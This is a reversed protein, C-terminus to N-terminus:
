GEMKIGAAEAQAIANLISTQLAALDKPHLRPAVPVMGAADRLAALMAGAAVLKAKTEDYERVQRQSFDEIIPQPKAM